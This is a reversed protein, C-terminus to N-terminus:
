CRRLDQDQLSGFSITQNAKGINFAQPVDAAANFNNDGAQHATITCSGAGTLHVTVDLQNHM